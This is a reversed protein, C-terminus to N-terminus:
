EMKVKVDTNVAGVATITAMIKRDTLEEHPVKIEFMTQKLVNKTDGDVIDGGVTGFGGWPRWSKGGDPSLFLQGAVAVKPDKLDTRDLLIAVKTIGSPVDYISTHATEDTFTRKSIATIETM